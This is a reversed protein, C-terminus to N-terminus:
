NSPASSLLLREGGADLSAKAYTLIRAVELQEDYPVPMERTRFMELVADVTRVHFREESFDPDSPLVSFRATGGTGFLSFHFGYAMRISRFCVTMGNEYGVIVVHQPDTGVHEVWEAGTGVLSVLPDIVHIGYFLLWGLPGSGDAAIIDGLAELHAEQALVAEAYRLGSCSLVPVDKRRALTVIEEAEFASHSLPKDLFAPVCSSIYPKAWRANRDPWEECSDDSSIVADVHGVAEDPRELVDPIDLAEAVVKTRDPDPTWLAVVKAGRCRPGESPAIFKMRAAEARERTCGNIIQSFNAGHSWDHKAATLAAIRIM